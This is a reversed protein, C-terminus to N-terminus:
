EEVLEIGQFGLKQYLPNKGSMLTKAENATLSVTFEKISEFKQCYDCKQTVLRYNGALYNTKM